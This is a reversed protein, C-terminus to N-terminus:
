SRGRVDQQQRTRAAYRPGSRRRAPGDRRARPDAPLSGIPRRLRARAPVSRGAGSAEAQNLEAKVRHYARAESFDPRRDPHRLVMWLPIGVWALIFLAAIPFNAVVLPTM